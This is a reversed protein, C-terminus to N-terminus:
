QKEIWGAAAVLDGAVYDAQTEVEAGIRISRCGAAHGAQVDAEKDGVMFSGRCDIGLESAAALLMGPAPKRCGCGADPAHPCLKMAEFAVGFPALLEQLREYQRWVVEEAFYGRGIGSQNTVLVLRFGMASMARLGEGAGPLLEVGEVDALYNRDVIVTGDRDLFVAQRPDAKM